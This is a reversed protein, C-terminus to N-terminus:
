THVSRRYVTMSRSHSSEASSGCFASMKMVTLPELRDPFAWHEWADTPRRLPFLFWTSLFLEGDVLIPTAEFAAKRILKTPTDNAGTRYTWAAKLEGVNSRDIQAVASYRNGGSDNGYTPWGANEVSQASIRPSLIAAFTIFAITRLMRVANIRM